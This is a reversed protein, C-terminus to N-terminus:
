QRPHAPQVIIEVRRNDARGEPTANDAVPDAPGMGQATVCDPAIGHSVLYGRVAEARHQSLEENFSLQGQTDTYGQVLIKSDPDEKVLVDAVQSLKAQAQPLLNYKASVFLVSGSLTIVMGRPEHKVSAIRELDAAARKARAEAAALAASEVALKQEASSLAAATQKAKEDKVLELQAKADAAEKSAASTKASAEALEAKRIAAYASDRTEQSPGNQEFSREARALQQQAAHLDVPALQAALGHAAEDYATRAKALEEPEPHTCAALTAGALAISLPLLILWKM